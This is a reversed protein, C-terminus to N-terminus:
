AITYAANGNKDLKPITITFQAGKDQTGTEKITWGYVMCIKRILYLGYGTGKGYGDKFIKEKEDEAIGVGNDEYVLRLQSDGDEYYIKIQSVTKGHRLSNDVLNYFIQRLLSDALLTLKSCSNVFTLDDIGSFLSLAEAVCKECDIYSLSEAGLMEYVKSFSFLKEIQDVASDISDFYESVDNNRALQQKALYVNNVIVSLKNRTDHRILKGVVGLKENSMMLENMIKKMSEEATKRETIDRITGQLGVINGNSDRLLKTKLEGWFTSGDKRIYEYQKLPIESDRGKAALLLAEKFDVIGREFSEPTMFCEPKLNMLEEPLYGALAKVSPSVYTVNLNMDQIFVVDSINETMLRYKKENEKLKEETQKHATIDRLTGQVGVLHGESDRLLKPKFEGWAKSGDKRIYEYCWLPLELDPNKEALAIAQKFTELGREFSEKTMLFKPGLKIIEEPTYGSLAEVNPSVYKISLDLNQIFVIDAINETLLRYKQESEKLQEETKKRETIDRLTGQIGSVHGNSDRIFHVRLEGWFPSGDKRLYEYQLLRIKNAPRKDALSLSENFSLLLKEYSEPTMFKDPKCGIIEEPIYGSLAEVSPSVYKITLDLDEVFIVDSINETLLRYKRESAKLKEETKKHELTNGILESVIQLLSVDESRWVGTQELNDFGIFGALEGFVTIPLLIVSTVNAHELIKKETKAEPPLLSTNPIQIIKGERLQEMWWPTKEIPVNQLRHIWSPVGEICWEHTNNMFVGNEHFLFLCVRTAGSIQGMDALSVNIAMDFDSPNVFRSSVRAIVSEFEVKRRLTEEAQRRQLAQLIYHSLQSYVTEPHGVKNIYYDAGLNMAKIAVKERGKGTFLIFPINSGSERLETLFTLGDKEPMQYDSVIVDFQKEELKQMAQKVSSATEVSFLNQLELIQKTTVSFGEEDDVHLVQIKQPTSDIVTKLLSNDISDPTITTKDM